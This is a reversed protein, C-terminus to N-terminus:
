SRTVTFAAMFKVVKQREGRARFFVWVRALYKIFFFVHATSHLARLAVFWGPLDYKQGERKRLTEDRRNEMKRVDHFDREIKFYPSSTSHM